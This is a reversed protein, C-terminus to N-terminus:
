QNKSLSDLSGTIISGNTDIKFEVLNSNNTLKMNQKYGLYTM